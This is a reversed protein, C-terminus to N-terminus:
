FALRLWVNSACRKYVQYDDFSLFDSLSLVTLSVALNYKTESTESNLLLGDEKSSNNRLTILTIFLPLYKKFISRKSMVRLSM